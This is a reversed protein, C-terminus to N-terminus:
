YTAWKKGLFTAKDEISSNMHIVHSMLDYSIQPTMISDKEYKPHNLVFERIYHAGSQVEGKARELVFQM